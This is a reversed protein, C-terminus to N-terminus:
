FGEKNGIWSALGREGFGDRGPEEDLMKGRFFCAEKARREVCCSEPSLCPHSEQNEQTRHIEWNCGLEVTGM